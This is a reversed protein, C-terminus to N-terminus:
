PLQLRNEVKRVGAVYWCDHEALRIQEAVPVAGTMVVEGDRCQIAMQVYDVLPDIDLALLIAEKIQEDGDQEPPEVKLHNVVNRSGPVWWAMVEALRRDCLSRVQGELLVTGDRSHIQFRGAEDDLRRLVEKEGKHDICVLGYHKFALDDLLMKALHDLIQDDQMEEAPKVTLREDVATVGPVASAVYYARRKASIEAVEGTLVVTGGQGEITIRDRHPNVWPDVEFAAYVAKALDNTTM